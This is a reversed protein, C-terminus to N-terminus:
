KIRLILFYMTSHEYDFLVEGTSNLGLFGLMVFVAIQKMKKM